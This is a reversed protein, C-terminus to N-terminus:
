GSLLRFSQIQQIQPIRQFHFFCAGDSLRRIVKVGGLGVQAFRDFLQFAVHPHSNEFASGLAQCGGLPAALKEVPGAGNQVLQVFQFRKKLWGTRLADNEANGDRTGAVDGIGEGLKNM